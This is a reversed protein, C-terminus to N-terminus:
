GEKGLVVQGRILVRGDHLITPELTERVMLGEENDFDEPNVPEAPLHPTYSAGDYTVMRMGLKSLLSEVQSQSYVLQAREREFRQPTVEQALRALRRVAKFWESAILALAM